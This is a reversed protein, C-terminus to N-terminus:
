NALIVVPAMIKCNSMYHQRAGLLPRFLRSLRVYVVSSDLSVCLFLLANLRILWFGWLHWRTERLYPKNSRHNSVRNWMRKYLKCNLKRYHKFACHACLKAKSFLEKQSFWVRLKFMNMKSPLLDVMTRFDTSTSRLASNSPYSKHRQFTPTPTSNEHEILM